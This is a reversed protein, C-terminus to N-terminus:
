REATLIESHIMEAASTQNLKLRVQAEIWQYTQQFGAELSIEPSWKLTDRLLTNDSNRGRVGQPGSIHRKTVSIGAVDAVIDV